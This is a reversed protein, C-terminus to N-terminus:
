RWSAGHRFPNDLSLDVGGRIRGTYNSGYNDAHLQTHVVPTSSLKVQLSSTGPQAGPVLTGAVRM